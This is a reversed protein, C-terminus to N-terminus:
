SSFDRDDDTSRANEAREYRLAAFFQESADPSVDPFIYFTVKELLAKIDATESDAVLKEAFGLAIERGAM